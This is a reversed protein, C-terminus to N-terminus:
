QSQKAVFSWRNVFDPQEGAFMDLFATSLSGDERINEKFSWWTDIQNLVPTIEQEEHFDQDLVAARVALCYSVYVYGEPWFYAPNKDDIDIPKSLVTLPDSSVLIRLMQGAAYGVYDRRSKPDTPKQQEFLRIWDMFCAVLAKDDVTFQIQTDASIVEVQKAFSRKFWRLRRVAKRIPQDKSALVDIVPQIM